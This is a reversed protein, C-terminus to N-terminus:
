SKAVQKMYGMNMAVPVIGLPNDVLRVFSYARSIETVIDRTSDISMGDVVLVELSHLPYTCALVSRLCEGIFGAENRCPIIVSVKKVSIIESPKVNM